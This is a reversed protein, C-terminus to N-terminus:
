NLVTVWPVAASLVSGTDANDGNRTGIKLDTQVALKNEFKPLRIWDTPAEHIISEM